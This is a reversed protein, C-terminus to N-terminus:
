TPACRVEMSSKPSKPESRMKWFSRAPWQGAVAFSGHVVWLVILKPKYKQFSLQFSFLEIHDIEGDVIPWQLEPLVV